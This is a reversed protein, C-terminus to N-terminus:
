RFNPINKAYEKKRSNDEQEEEYIIEEPRYNLRMYSSVERINKRLVTRRRHKTYYESIPNAINKNLEILEHLWSRLLTTREEITKENWESYLMDRVVNTCIQSSWLGL